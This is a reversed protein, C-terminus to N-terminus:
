IYIYIYIYIYVYIYTYTNVYVDFGDVKLYTAFITDDGEILLQAKCSHLHFKGLSPIKNLFIIEM